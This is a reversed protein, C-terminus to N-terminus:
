AGSSPRRTVRFMNLNMYIHFLIKICQQMKNSKRHSATCLGAAVVLIKCNIVFFNIQIQINSNATGCYSIRWTQWFSSDWRDDTEWTAIHIFHVTPPDSIFVDIASVDEAQGKYWFAIVGSMSCCVSNLLTYHPLLPLSPIGKYTGKRRQLDLCTGQM